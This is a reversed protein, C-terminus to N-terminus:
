GAYGMRQLHSSFLDNCLQIQAPTMIQKYRGIVGRNFHLALPDVLNEPLYPELLRSVDDDKLELGLFTVLRKMEEIPWRLLDEYRVLLAQEIASWDEWTKLRYAAYLIADEICKLRAFPRHTSGIARLREGHEFASVAVDRPDRYIFTPKIVGLSILRRAGWTLGKHTKVVFTQGQLHPISLLALKPATLRGANCNSGFLVPRLYWRERVRRADQYGFYILLDNTLNFYWASGAKQMGVSLVIM